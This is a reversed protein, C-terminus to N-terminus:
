KHFKLLLEVEGDGMSLKQAIEKPTYGQNALSLVKATQSQEVIDEQNDIFPPIYQEGDIVPSTEAQKRVPVVLSQKGGQERRKNVYTNLTQAQKREETKKKVLLKKLLNENEEKMEMTYAILLDEIEKKLKEQDGLEKKSNIKQFLIIIIFFTILNLLISVTVLYIVFDRRIYHKLYILPISWRNM